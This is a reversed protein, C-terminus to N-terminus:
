EYWMDQDEAAGVPEALHTVNAPLMNDMSSDEDSGISSSYILLHSEDDRWM